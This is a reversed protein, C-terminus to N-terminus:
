RKGLAGKPVQLKNLRHVIDAGYHKVAKATLVGEGVDMAVHGDDPGPPNPGRLKNHTVIGGRYMGGSAVGGTGGMDGASSAGGGGSAGGGAAGGGGQAGGAGGGGPAGGGAPGDFGMIENGTMAGLGGVGLGMAAAGASGLGGGFTGATSGTGFDGGLAGLPESTVPGLPATMPQSYGLRSAVSDLGLASLFEQFSGPPTQGTLDGGAGAGEAGPWSDMMMPAPQQAQQPAVPAPADVTPLVQTTDYVPRRVQSGSNLWVPYQVGGVSRYGYFGSTTSGSM